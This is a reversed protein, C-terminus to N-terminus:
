SARLFRPQRAPRQPRRPHHRRSASRALRTRRGDLQDARMALSAWAPDTSENRPALVRGCIKVAADLDKRRGGRAIVTARAETIAPDLCGTERWAQDAIQDATAPNGATRHFALCARLVVDALGPAVRRMALYGRGHGKGQANGSGKTDWFAVVASEELRIASPVLASRWTDLPCPQGDRCAPCPDDAACREIGGLTTDLWAHIALAVGRRNAAGPIWSRQDAGPQGAIRTAM